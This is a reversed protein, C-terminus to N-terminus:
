PIVLKLMLLANQIMTHTKFPSSNAESQAGDPHAVAHGYRSRAISLVLGSETAMAHALLSQEESLFFCRFPNRFMLCYNRADIILAFSM